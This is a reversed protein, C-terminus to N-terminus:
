KQKENQSRVSLAFVCVYQFVFFWGILWVFFVLAPVAASWVGLLNLTTKFDPLIRLHRKNNLHRSMWKTTHLTPQSEYSNQLSPMFITFCCTKVHEEENGEAVESLLWQVKLLVVTSINIWETSQLLNQVGLDKEDPLKWLFAAYHTSSLPMAQKWRYPM